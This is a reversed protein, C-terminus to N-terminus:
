YIFLVEFNLGLGQRLLEQNFVQTRLTWLIYHHQKHRLNITITHRTSYKQLKEENIVM